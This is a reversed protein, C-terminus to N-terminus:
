RQTFDPPFIIFAMGEEGFELLIRGEHIRWQGMPVDTICMLCRYSFINFFKPHRGVHNWYIATNKIRDSLDSRIIFCAIDKAAGNSWLLFFNIPWPDVCKSRYGIHGMLKQRGMQGMVWQGM